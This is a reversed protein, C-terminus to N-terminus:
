FCCNTNPLNAVKYQRNDASYPYTFYEETLKKGYMDCVNKKEQKGKFTKQNINTLSSVYFDNDIVKDVGSNDMTYTLYNRMKYPSTTENYELKREEGDTLKKIYNECDFYLATSNRFWFSVSSKPPLHTHQKDQVVTTSSTGKTGVSYVNSVHNMNVSTFTSQSNRFFDNSYNKLIFHSKSWDITLAKSTKNYITFSVSGDVSWLNYHIDVDENSYYLDGNEFKVANSKWESVQYIQNQASVFQSSIVILALLILKRM